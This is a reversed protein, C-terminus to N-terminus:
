SERKGKPKTTKNQSPSKQLWTQGGAKQTPFPSSIRRGAEVEGSSPNCSTGGHRTQTTSTVSGLGRIYTSQEVQAVDGLM